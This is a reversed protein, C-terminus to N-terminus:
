HQSFLMQQMRCFLPILFMVMLPNAAQIQSPLLTFEYGFFNVMRNMNEAQIIWRSGTQDFLAWFIAVFIYVLGLRGFIGVSDKNFLDKKYSDIGSPPVATFVNRGMWFVVTAVFMLIGPIGFAISPGYYKLLLPTALTSIFSGFNISFYFWMFVKSLLHGNTKGFQDGVHASVCPKIGGSGIAILTLGVALGFQNEFVALALHGLCYVVSLRMITLYKGWFIDSIIAGIIPFAYTASVFLHYWYSAEETSMNAPNGSIDVLYQTMFVMLIAKMGYFSFREAAENGIIYPIGNPILKQPNENTTTSM